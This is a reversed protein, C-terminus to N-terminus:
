YTVLPYKINYKEMQWSSNEYEYLVERYVNITKDAIKDWSYNEVANKYGNNGIKESKSPDFLLDTYCKSIRKVARLSESVM